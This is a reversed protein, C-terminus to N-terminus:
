QKLKLNLTITQPKDQLSLNSLDVSQFLKSNQLNVWLRATDIPGVTNFTLTISNDAQLNFNSITAGVPLLNRLKELIPAPDKANNRSIKVLEAQAANKATLANLRQAQGDIEKFAATKLRVNAIQMNLIHGWIWPLSLVFILVVLAAAGIATSKMKKRSTQLVPDINVQEWRLAFNLESKIRM